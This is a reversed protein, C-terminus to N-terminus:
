SDNRDCRPHNHRAEGGRRGPTQMEAMREARNQTVFVGPLAAPLEQQADLIEVLRSAAGLEDVADAFVQAPKAKTPILRHQDLGVTGGDILFCKLLKALSAKDICAEARSAVNCGREFCRM